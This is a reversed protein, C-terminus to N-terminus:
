AFWSCCIMEVGELRFSDHQRPFMALYILYLDHMITSAHHCSIRVTSLVHVLQFNTNSQAPMEHIVLTHTYIYLYIYINVHQSGLALTTNEIPHQSAPSVWGLCVLAPSETDQDPDISQM